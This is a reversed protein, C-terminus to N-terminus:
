PKNIPMSSPYFQIAPTSPPGSKSITYRSKDEGYCLKGKWGVAEKVFSIFQRKASSVVPLVVAVAVVRTAEQWLHKSFLIRIMSSSSPHENNRTSIWSTLYNQITLLSSYIGFADPTRYAEPIIDYSTCYQKHRATGPTRYPMARCLTRILIASKFYTGTPCVKHRVKQNYPGGPFNEVKAAYGRFIRFNRDCSLRRRWAADRRRGCCCAPAAPPFPSLIKM